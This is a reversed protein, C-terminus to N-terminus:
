SRQVAMTNDIRVVDMHRHRNDPHNHGHVGSLNLAEAFESHIDRIDPALFSCPVLIAGPLFFVASLKWDQLVHRDAGKWRFPVRPTCAIDTVFPQM